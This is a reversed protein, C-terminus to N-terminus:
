PSAELVLECAQLSHIEGHLGFPFEYEQSLFGWSEDAIYKAEESLQLSKIMCSSGLRYQCASGLSFRPTMSEANTSPSRALSM